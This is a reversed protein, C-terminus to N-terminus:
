MRMFARDRLYLSFHRSQFFGVQRKLGFGISCCSIALCIQWVTGYVTFDAESKTFIIEPNPFFIGTVIQIIVPITILM